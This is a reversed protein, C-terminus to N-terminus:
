RNPSADADPPHTSIRGSLPDLGTIANIASDGVVRGDPWATATHRDGSDGITVVVRKGSQLSARRGRALAERLQSTEDVVRGVPRRDRMAVGVIGFTLGIIALVVILEILTTGTIRPRTNRM